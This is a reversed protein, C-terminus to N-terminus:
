ADQIVCEHAREKGREKELKKEEERIKQAKRSNQGERHEVNKVTQM